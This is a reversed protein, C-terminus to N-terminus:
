KNRKINRELWNQRGQVDYIPWAFQHNDKVKELYCNYYWVQNKKSRRYYATFKNVDEASLVGEGCLENAVSCLGPYYNEFNRERFEKEIVQLIALIKM